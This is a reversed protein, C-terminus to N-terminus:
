SQTERRDALMADVRVAAIDDHDRIEGLLKSRVGHLERLLADIADMADNAAVRVAPQAKSDDRTAWTALSVAFKEALVHIRVTPTENDSM